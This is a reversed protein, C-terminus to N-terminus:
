SQGGRKRSHHYMNDRNRRNILSGKKDSDGIRCILLIARIFRFVPLNFGYPNPEGLGDPSAVGGRRNGVYRDGAVRNQGEGQTKTM